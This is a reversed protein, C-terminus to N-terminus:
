TLVVRTVSYHSLNFSCVVVAAATQGLILKGCCSHHQRDDFVNEAPSAASVSAMKLVFLLTKWLRGGRHSM